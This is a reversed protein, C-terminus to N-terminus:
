SSKKLRTKQRSSLSAELESVLRLHTDSDCPSYTYYTRESLPTDTRPEVVISQDSSSIGHESLEKRKIEVGLTFRLSAGKVFRGVQESSFEKAQRSIHEVLVPNLLTSWDFGLQVTCSTEETTVLPTAGEFSPDLETLVKCIAAYAANAASSDGLVQIFIRRDHFSAWTIPAISGQHEITGDQFIYELNDQWNTSNFGLSERLWNTGLATIVFRYPVTDPSFLRTQQVHMGTVNKM